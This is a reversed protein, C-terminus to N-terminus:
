SSDIIKLDSQESELSVYENMREYAVLTQKTFTIMKYLGQVIALLQYM